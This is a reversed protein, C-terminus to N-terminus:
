KLKKLESLYEKLINEAAELSPTLPDLIMAQEVLEMSSEAIGKVLLLYKESHLRLWAKVADPLDVSIGEIKKGDIVAPVEVAIESPLGSILGKNPINVALLSLKKENSLASIIDLAYEGSPRIEKRGRIIASFVDEQRRVVNESLKM